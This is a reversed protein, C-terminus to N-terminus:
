DDSDDGSEDEESKTLVSSLISAGIGIEKNKSLFQAAKLGVYSAGAAGLIAGAVFTGMSINDSAPIKVKKGM